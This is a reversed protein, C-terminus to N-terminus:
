LDKWKQKAEEQVSDEPATYVAGTTEANHVERILGLTAICIRQFPGPRCWEPHLIALEQFEKELFGKDKIATKAVSPLTRINMGIPNGLFINGRVGFELIICYIHQLTQVSGEEANQNILDSLFASWSSYSSDNPMGSYDLRPFHRKYAMVQSMIKAVDEPKGELKKNLGDLAYKAAQKSVPRSKPAPEKKEMTVRGKKPTTSPASTSSALSGLRPETKVGPAVEKEM